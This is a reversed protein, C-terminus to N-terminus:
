KEANQRRIAHKWGLLQDDATMLTAGHVIATAMIFRDAPDDPLNAIDVARLAIEGTVPLEIIGADLVHERLKEASDISKLRNKIVLLAIEWFSIASVALRDDALAQDALAQSKKGLGADTTFWILAHTDLLIVELSEV